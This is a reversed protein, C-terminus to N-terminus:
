PSLPRRARAAARSRADAAISALSRRTRRALSLIDRLSWGYGDALLHIEALLAPRENLIRQLLFSQLDFHTLQRNGCETCRADLELDVIPAGSELAAAAAEVDAPAVGCRAALATVADRTGEAVAGTEDEATPVRYAIGAENAVCGDSAAHWGSAAAALHRQVASLEFSLDFREGCHACALTSRITDGWLQRHLAALLADRDCAALRTAPPIAAAESRLLRELLAVAARTDVGEVSMEDRGSPERLAAVAPAAHALHRLTVRETFV